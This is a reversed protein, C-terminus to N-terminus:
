RREPRQPRRCIHQVRKVDPHDCLLDFRRLCKRIVQTESEKTQKRELFM